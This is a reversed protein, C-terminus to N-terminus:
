GGAGYQPHPHTVHLIGGCALIFDVCVSPGLFLGFPVDGVQLRVGVNWQAFEPVDIDNMPRSTAMCPNPMKPLTVAFSDSSPHL